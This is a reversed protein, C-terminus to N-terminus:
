DYSVHSESFPGSVSIWWAMAVALLNQSFDSPDSINELSPADKFTWEGM